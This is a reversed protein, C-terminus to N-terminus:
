RTSGPSDSWVKSWAMISRKVVSASETPSVLPALASPMVGYWAIVTADITCFSPTYWFFRPLTDRTM